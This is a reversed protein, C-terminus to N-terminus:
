LADNSLTRLFSAIELPQVEIIEFEEEKRYIKLREKSHGKLIRHSDDFFDFIKVVGSDNMRLARGVRQVTSVESLGGAGIILADIEPIDVGENFIRSAILIPLKKRKFLDVAKERLFDPTEGYIFDHLRSTGLERELLKSITRGHAIKEVLILTALSSKFCATAIKGLIQNRFGNEIIGIREIEMWDKGWQLLSDYHIMHITPKASIKKRILESQHMRMILPGTSARVMMETGKGGTFATASAAYRFQTNKCKKAFDYYTDAQAHHGEDIIFCELSDRWDIFEKEDKRAHLTQIMAITIDKPSWQDGGIV